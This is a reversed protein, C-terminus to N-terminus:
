INISAPIRSPLLFPYPRNRQTNRSTITTEIQQLAAQFANLPVAVRADNFIPAFPFTSQKYEGLKTYYVGALINYIVLNEEATLMTPLMNIWSQETYTSSGNPAPASSHAAMAPAYTMMPLQPFNVAAHQASATFIIMTIVDSLQAKSRIAKFGAVRGQTIIENVWSTLETDNVVDNDSTYYINIYDKAWNSIANWLLLGDDRYPYNPLTANNSVKRAALDNPLMKAYFDFSFRDKAVSTKIDALTATFLVDIFLGPAMLLLAAEENVFLTGEFHPMLLVNLPHNAALCRHTAICIAELVLHSRTLHVFMEHYNEDAVSVVTKAMQWRWYGSTNLTSNPLIIPSISPDQSCQIAVSVLSTGNKPKAFLAIPAFAYGIGTLPKIVAQKPALLGLDVYDLIFVRGSSLADYLSDQSGMVQVFQANTLPFNAPLNTIGKILVPNPGAVRLYSFYDDKNFESAALPLPITRFLNNYAKLGQQKPDGFIQDVYPIIPKVFNQITIILSNLSAEILQLAILAEAILTPRNTYTSVFNSYSAVITRYTTAIVTAPAQWLGWYTTGAISAIFNGILDVIIGIVKILYESSPQEKHPLNALMPIGELNPYSTSWGYAGQEVLLANNRAMRSLVTEQQPLLPVAISSASSITLSPSALNNPGSISVESSTVQSATNIVANGPTDMWKAFAASGAVLATLKVMDRRTFVQKEQM